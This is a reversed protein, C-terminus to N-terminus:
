ELAWFFTEGSEAPDLDRANMLGLAIADKVCRGFAVGKAKENNAPYTKLFEIRVTEREAAV